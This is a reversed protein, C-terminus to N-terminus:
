AEVGLVETRVFSYNATSATENAAQEGLGSLVLLGAEGALGSECPVLLGAEGALEDDGWCVSKDALM